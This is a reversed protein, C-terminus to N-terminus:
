FRLLASEGQPLADPRRFLFAPAAEQLTAGAYVHRLM